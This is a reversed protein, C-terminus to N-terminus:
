FDIKGSAYLLDVVTILVGRTKDDAIMRIRRVTDNMVSKDVVAIITRGFSNKRETWFGAFIPMTYLYYGANNTELVSVSGDSVASFIQLIDDFYEEDQIFVNFMVKEDDVKKDGADIYGLLSEKLSEADKAGLISGPADPTKLVKSLASLIQIHQGRESKPGVIYFFLKAPKEDTSNFDIEKETVVVGVSFGSAKEVGCHPIAVGRGFGTSGLSEREKLAKYITEEDADIKEDSAALKAIKRLVSEKNPSNDNVVIRKESIIQKFDM